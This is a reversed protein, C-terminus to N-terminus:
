ISKENLISADKGFFIKAGALISQLGGKFALSMENHATFGCLSCDSTGRNKLYCGHLITGDPEANALLRDECTWRENKLDMLSNFSNAVPYGLRKLRILEDLIPRREKPQIFLPDPLGEYPYHFQITVGEVVGKLMTLLDPITGVNSANITTSVFARGNGERKLNGWVQEFVGEGRMANHVLAPGDLSVWVRDLPLDGWPVTGNTTMCVCPFLRRAAAIVDRVSKDRDRWLLPEGGELILIRVGMSKLLTLTAVVGEFNQEPGSRKWYPCHVCKLNCKNTIKYGGLVPRIRGGLNYALFPSAFSCLSRIRSVYGYVAPRNKAENM